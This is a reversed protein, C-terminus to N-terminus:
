SRLGKKFANRGSTPTSVVLSTPRVLGVCPPFGSPQSALDAQPSRSLLVFQPVNVTGCRTMMSSDNGALFPMPETDAFQEPSNAYLFKGVVADAIKRFLGPPMVMARERGFWVLSMADSECLPPVVFASCTPLHHFSCRSSVVHPQADVTIRRWDTVALFNAMSKRTPSQVAHFECEHM